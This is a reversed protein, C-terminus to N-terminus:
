PVVTTVLLLTPRSPRVVPAAGAAQIELALWAAGGTSDESDSFDGGFSTGNSGDAHAFYATRNSGEEDPFTKTWGSVPDSFGWRPEGEGHGLMILRSTSVPTSDFTGTLAVGGTLTAATAAKSQRIPTTTNYGTAFQVLGCGFGPSPAASLTVTVNDASPSATAITWYWFIRVFGSGVATSIPGATWAGTAWTPTDISSVTRSADSAFTCGFLVLANATPTVNGSEPITRTTNGGMHDVQMQQLYSVASLQAFAPACLLLAVLTLLARMM